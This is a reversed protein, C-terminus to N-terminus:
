PRLAMRSPWADPVPPLEGWYTLVRDIRGGAGFFVIDEGRHTVRGEPSVMAITFRATDHHGDLGSALVARTGPQTVLFRRAEAVIAAHGKFAYGPGLIEADHTLSEKVLAEIRAVDVESWIAVYAMVVKERAADV